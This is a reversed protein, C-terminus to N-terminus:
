QSKASALRGQLRNSVEVYDAVLIRKDKVVGAFTAVLGSRLDVFRVERRSDGAYGSFKANEDVIIVHSSRELTILRQEYDVTAIMGTVSVRNDVVAGPSFKASGYSEPATDQKSNERVVVYDAALIRKDKIVGEFTAFQGSRIDAFRMKEQNLGGEDILKADATVVILHSSRELTVTREDYDIAAIVGTVSVRDNVVSGAALKASSSNSEVATPSNSSCGILFLATVGFLLQSIIVVAKKM